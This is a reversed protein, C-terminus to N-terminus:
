HHQFHMHIHIKYTCLHCVCVFVCASSLLTCIDYACHVYSICLTTDAHITRNRYMDEARLLQILHMHTHIGHVNMPCVYLYMCMHVGLVLAYRCGYSQINSSFEHVYANQFCHMDAHISQIKSSFVHVYANQFSHMNGRAQEKNAAQDSRTRRGTM